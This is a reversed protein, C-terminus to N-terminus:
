YPIVEEEFHEPTIIQTRYQVRESVLNTRWVIQEIDNKLVASLKETYNSGKENQIKHSQVMARAVVVAIKLNKADFSEEIDVTKSTDHSYSYQLEGFLSYRLM